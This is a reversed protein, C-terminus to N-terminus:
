FDFLSDSDSQDISAKKKQEIKAEVVATRQKPTEILLECYAKISILDETLKENDGNHISKKAALVKEEIKKIIFEPGINM